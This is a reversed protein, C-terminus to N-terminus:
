RERDTPPRPTVGLFKALDAETRIASTGRVRHGRGDFLGYQNLRWGLGKTHARIRINYRSSGTHHLLAYPLEAPLAFFFDVRFNRGRFRVVTSRRRPGSSYSTLLRAGRGGAAPPRFRVDFADRAAPSQPERPAVLLIDLDKTSAKRRRVSGVVHVRRAPWVLQARIQEALKDALALPIVPEPEFILEAQAAKPLGAILPDEPGHAALRKKLAARTVRRRKFVAIQAASLGPLM